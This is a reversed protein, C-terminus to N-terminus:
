YLKVLLKREKKRGERRKERVEKKGKHKKKYFTIHTHLSIKWTTIWTLWYRKNFISFVM